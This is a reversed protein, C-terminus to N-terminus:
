ASAKKAETSKDPVFIVFHAEGEGVKDRGEPVIRVLALRTDQPRRWLVRAATGLGFASHFAGNVHFVTQGKAREQAITQAMTDDRLCQAEYFRRITEKSMGGEGHASRGGMAETFKTSYADSPTLIYDAITAREAETLTPAVTAWGEKGVRRVIKQPANSGRVPIKKARAYEVMPRYDKQYNNWLTASKALDLETIKGALYDDLATQGDRELMEMALTLKAGVKKHVAELLAAEARHTEPDDHFEGVFIVNAEALKKVMDGWSIPKNDKTDVVRWDKGIPFEDKAHATETALTLLSLATMALVNRRTM